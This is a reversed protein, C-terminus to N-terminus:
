LLQHRLALLILGVLMMALGMLRLSGLEAGLLLVVVQRATAPFAFWPLGEILFLLGAVLLLDSWM